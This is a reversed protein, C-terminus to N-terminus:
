HSSVTVQATFKSETSSAAERTHKFREKNINAETHRETKKYKSTIANQLLNSYKEESLRYMNSTKMLATLTKNSSRIDKLDQALTRQFKNDVKWFRCNKKLKISDEEFPVLEKLQPPCKTSNLGFTLGTKHIKINASSLLCM